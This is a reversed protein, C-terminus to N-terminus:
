GLLKPKISVPHEVLYFWELDAFVSKPADVRLWDALSAQTRITKHFFTVM